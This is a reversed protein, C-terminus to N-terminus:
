NSGCHTTLTNSKLLTIKMTKKNVRQRGKTQRDTQRDTQRETKRDKQRNTQRDTYFRSYIPYLIEKNWFNLYHYVKRLFLFKKM